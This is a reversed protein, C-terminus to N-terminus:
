SFSFMEEKYIYETSFSNRRKQWASFVAFFFMSLSFTIPTTKKSRITTVFSLKKDGHRKRVQESV